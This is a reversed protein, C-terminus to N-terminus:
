ILHELVESLKMNLTHTSALIKDKMKGTNYLSHLTYAIKMAKLFEKHSLNKTKSIIHKSARNFTIGFKKTDSFLKTDRLVLLPFIYIEEANFQGVWDISKMLKEYTDGPLGMILHLRYPVKNRDLERLNHELIPIVNKRHINELTDKHISQVGIASHIKGQKLLLIFKRDIKWMSANIFIQVITKSKLKNIFRLLAASRKPYINFNDDNISIEKPKYKFIYELERKARDLPFFRLNHYMRVSYTCYSCNFPCGRSTEISVLTNKKIKILGALYPSPILKLDLPKRDGNRYISGNARYSIGMIKTIEIERRHLSIIELFTQEGEDRCIIDICKNRKLLQETNTSVEPGGLIIISLPSIRKIIECLRLTPEINWMFCSFGIITVKKQVIKMAQEFLLSDSLSPYSTKTDTPYIHTHIELIDIRPSHVSYKEVYVKLNYLGLQIYPEQPTITCLLVREKQM